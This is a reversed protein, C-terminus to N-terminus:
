YFILLAKADVDYQYSFRKSSVTWRSRVSRYAQGINVEIEVENFLSFEFLSAISTGITNSEVEACSCFSIDTLGFKNVM